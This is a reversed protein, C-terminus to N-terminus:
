YEKDGGGMLREMEDAIRQLPERLLEIEQPDYHIDSVTDGTTENTMRRMKHNATRIQALFDELDSNKVKHNVLREVADRLNLDRGLKIFSRRLGQATIDKLGTASKLAAAQLRVHGTKCLDERVTPFVFPSGNTNRAQCRELIRSSQRSLPVHLAERNKLDPFYIEGKQLDVHDWTISAAEATPRMGHYLCLLYADRTTPNFKGIGDHFQLFDEGKLYEDREKIPKLLNSAAIVTFPNVSIAQPYRTIAYNIVASIASHANRAEGEGSSIELNKHRVILVDTDLRAIDPLTVSLLDAFHRKIRNTYSDVTSKKHEHRKKTRKDRFYISLMGELTVDVGKPPAQQLTLRVGPVFNKQADSSGKVRKRAEEATLDGFRGLKKKVSRYGKKKTTDRVDVQVFFTKARTGVLLGFGPLDRDWYIVQGVTTNPIKEITAKTLTLRRPSPQPM